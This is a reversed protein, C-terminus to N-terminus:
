RVEIELEIIKQAGAETTFRASVTHSGGTSLRVSEGSVAEDDYYWEIGASDPRRDYQTEVLNLAFTAGVPYVGNGPDEIYNYSSGPLDSLTFNRVTPGEVSVEESLSVYGSMSIEVTYDGGEELTFSFAGKADTTTSQLVDEEGSVKLTVSAGKVPSNYSDKVVGSIGYDINNVYLFSATHTTKDFAIDTLAFDTEKGDWDVPTYSSVNGSGPFTYSGYYYNLSTINGSPIIYFCPHEGNCNIANSSEWYAWLNYATDYTTGYYSDRRTVRHSKAKDVHYILLGSKLPADWGTGPRCEYYFYEGDASTLTKYAIVETADISPVLVKGPTDLVKFDCAWGLLALEEANMWPPTCGGNNYSGECMVDYAYTAGAEGDGYNDYNTDYFDPLGISHAFEHCTTGIGCMRSGSYGKFESTCFYRDLYVGDFAQPNSVVYPVYYQHPWITSSPGGEAENYGAYYLLAMDITGNHDNDFQSFDVSDDLAQCAEYLAYAANDDYSGYTSMKDKLTVVDMVVFEPTFDGRSQDYYYDYVSGTGGNDSYGRETLLRTFAAKPDSITFSKDSFEVLVVPIKPSGISRAKQVAEQRRALIERKLSRAEAMQEKVADMTKASRVLKGTSDEELLNGNVDTIYHFWEDGHIRVTITTGDPQTLTINGPKAPVALMAQSLCFLASALMAIIITKRM